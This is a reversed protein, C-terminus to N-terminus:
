RGEDVILVVVPVLPADGGGRLLFFLMRGGEASNVAIKYYLRLQPILPAVFSFLYCQLRTSVYEFFM